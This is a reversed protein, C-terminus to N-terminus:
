HKTIKLKFKKNKIEFWAPYKENDVVRLLEFQERLTKDLDLKSDIYNRRPYYSAEGAQIRSKDLIGPYNNIFKLCLNYTATAQLNRWEDVLEDGQLDILEQLYVPGSDVSIGAEFLSVTIQKVGELIQWTMPSWGKGKPLDSEHVVLNNKFKSLLESGVIKGYSLYFCIDGGTLDNANHSWSVNYGANVMSMILEVLSDNIWSEKDSCLSISLKSESSKTGTIKNDNNKFNRLHFSNFTIEGSQDTRYKILAIKLIEQKIDNDLVVPSVDYYVACVGNDNNFYVIAIPTADITLFSAQCVGDPPLM